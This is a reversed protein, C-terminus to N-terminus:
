AHGMKSSLLSSTYRIDNIIENKKANIADAPGSVAFAAIVSGSANFIPGSISCQGLIYEENSFGLRTKLIEDLERILKEKKTITNPTFSRYTSNGLFIERHEDDMFALLMKGTASAHAPILSGSSPYALHKQTSDFRMVISIANGIAMSVNVAQRYKFTLREMYAGSITMINNIGTYKMGLQFLMTGLQYDGSSSSKEIFNRAFLTNVIGRVSSKPLNLREAIDSISLTSEEGTFLELVELARDISQITKIDNKNV